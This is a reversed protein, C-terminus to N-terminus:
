GKKWGSGQQEERGGGVDPTQQGQDTDTAPTAGARRLAVGASGVSMKEGVFSEVGAKPKRQSQSDFPIAQYIANVVDDECDKIMDYFEKTMKQTVSDRPTDAVAFHNGEAEVWCSLREACIAKQLTFKSDQVDELKLGHCIGFIQRPNLKTVEDIVNQIVGQSADHDNFDIEPHEEKEDHFIFNIANFCALKETFHRDSIYSLNLDCESGAANLEQEIEDHINKIFGDERELEEIQEIKFGNLVLEWIKRPHDRLFTVCEPLDKNPNLAHVSRIDDVVRGAHVLIQAGNILQRPYAEHPILYNPKLDENLRGRNIPNFVHEVSVGEDKFQWLIELRITPLMGLVEGKLFTGATFADVQRKVKHSFDRLEQVDPHANRFVSGMWGIEREVLRRQELAARQEPSLEGNNEHPM